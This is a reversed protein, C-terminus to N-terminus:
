YESMPEWHCEGTEKKSTQYCGTKCYCTGPATQPHDEYCQRWKCNYETVVKCIYIDQRQQKKTIWSEETYTWTENKESCLIWAGTGNEDWLPNSKFNIERLPNIPILLFAPMFNDKTKLFGCGKEDCKPDKKEGSDSVWEACRKKSDFNECNWSVNLNSKWQSCSSDKKAECEWKVGNNASWKDCQSKVCNTGQWEPVSSFADKSKLPETKINEDIKSAIEKNTVSNLYTLSNLKEESYVNLVSFCFVILSKVMIKYKM